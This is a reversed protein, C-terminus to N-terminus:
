RAGTSHPPPHPVFPRYLLRLTPADPPALLGDGELKDFRHVNVEDVDSRDLYIIEVAMGAPLVLCHALAMLGVHDIEIGYPEIASGCYDVVPTDLFPQYLDPNSKIWASTLFQRAM